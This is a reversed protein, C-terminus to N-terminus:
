SQVAVALQVAGSAIARARPDHVHRGCICHWADYADDWTGALHPCDDEFAFTKPMEALFADEVERYEDSDAKDKAVPALELLESPMWGRYFIEDDEMSAFVYARGPQPHGFVKRTISTILMTGNEDTPAVRMWADIDGTRLSKGYGHLLGVQALVTALKPAYSSGSGVRRRHLETAELRLQSDLRVRM